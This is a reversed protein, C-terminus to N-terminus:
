SIIEEKLSGGGHLFAFIERMAESACARELEQLLEKLEAHEAARLQVTVVGGELGVPVSLQIQPRLRLARIRNEIEEEIRSLRPFRLRRVEGKLRKLKDSRGLRPDSSIRLIPESTLIRCISVSDRLAIEELWELLDRFHNEGMKLARALDLLAERDAEQLSIWRALTKDHFGKEKGYNLVADDLM